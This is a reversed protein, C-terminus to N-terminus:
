VGELDAIMRETKADKVRNLWKTAEHDDRLTKALTFSSGTLFLAGMAVYGRVWPEVPLLSIGVGMAIVACAFSIIVFARWGPSDRHLDPDKSLTM